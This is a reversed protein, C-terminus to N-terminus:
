ALLHKMVILNNYYGSVVLIKIRGRFKGLITKGARYKANKVFIEWCFFVIKKRCSELLRFNLLPPIAGM